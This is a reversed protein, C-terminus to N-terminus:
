KEQWLNIKKYSQKPRQEKKNCNIRTEHIDDRGKHKPMNIKTIKLIDKQKQM